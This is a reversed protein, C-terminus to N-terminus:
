SRESNTTAPNSRLTVGLGSMARIMARVGLLTRARINGGRETDRGSGAHV